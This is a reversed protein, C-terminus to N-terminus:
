GGRGLNPNAEQFKQWKEEVEKDDFGQAKKIVKYAESFPIPKGTIIRMGDKDVHVDPPLDEEDVLRGVDDRRRFIIFAM